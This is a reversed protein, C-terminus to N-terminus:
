SRLIIAGVSTFDPTPSVSLYCFLGFTRLAPWAAAPFMSQQNPTAALQRLQALDALM